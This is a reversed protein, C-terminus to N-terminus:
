AISCISIISESEKTLPSKDWNGYQEAVCFGNNELLANLEQPFTYRIAIRTVREKDGEPERWRRWLTYALVQAAHDYEQIETIRVSRGDKDTYTMWETENLDTVLDQWRPNRTEFAFLGAETLHTKINKLLAVQDKNNLFAQFANGTMYIMNFKEGLSFNRADGEFWRIHLGQQEAKYRAHNLMTSM